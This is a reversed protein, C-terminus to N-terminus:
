FNPNDNAVARSTILDLIARGAWQSSAKALVAFSGDSEDELVIFLGGDGGLADLGQDDFTARSIETLWLARHGDLRVVNEAM